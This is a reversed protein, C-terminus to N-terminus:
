SWTDHLLHIYKTSCLLMVLCAIYAYCIIVRTWTVMTATSFCYTNCVSLTYKCDKTIWSAFRLRCTLNDYTLEGLRCCQEVNDGLLCLKRSFMESCLIHSKSKEVIKDSVIRMGLLDSCSIIKFACLGAHLNGTIRTLNWHFKHKRFM